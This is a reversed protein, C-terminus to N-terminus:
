LSLWAEKSRIPVVGALLSKTPGASPWSSPGEACSASRALASFSSRELDSCM